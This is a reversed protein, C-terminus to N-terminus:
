EVSKSDGSLMADVYVVHSVEEMHTIPLFKFYEALAVLICPPM